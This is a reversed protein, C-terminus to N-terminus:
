LRGSSDVRCVWYVGQNRENIMAERLHALVPEVDDDALLVEVKIRPTYGVVRDRSSLFPDTDVHSGHGQVPTFTFGSVQEIDRLTDSLQHQMNAHTVLNLMKM